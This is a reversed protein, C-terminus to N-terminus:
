SHLRASRVVMEYEDMQQASWNFSAKSIFATITESPLNSKIMLEVIEANKKHLELEKYRLRNSYPDIIQCQSPEGSTKSRKSKKSIRGAVFLCVFLFWANFWQIALWHSADCIKVTKRKIQLSLWCPRDAMFLTREAAVWFWISSLTKKMDDPLVMAQICNPFYM